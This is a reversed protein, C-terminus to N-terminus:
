RVAKRTRLALALWAIAGVLAAAAVAWFIWAPSEWRGRALGPEPRALSDDTASAAPSVAGNALDAARGFPAATVLDAARGFPAATALDAARGFPAATAPSDLRHVAARQDLGLPPRSAVPGGHPGRALPWV